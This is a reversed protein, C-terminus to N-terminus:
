CHIAAIDCYLSIVRKTDDDVRYLDSSRRGVVWAIEEGDMLLPQREKEFLNLKLDTLFDSVLKRKGGMGFPAFTDGEKPTRLTLEGHLKDADLYAYNPSKNFTVKEVPLTKCHLSSLNFNDNKEREVILATRDILLRRGNAVFVKGSENLASLVEKLQAKNFGLPSLVEHLLSIPSPQRKLKEIHICVEGNEKEEVCQSIAEKMAEQYVKMVENLNEMTSVMNNAAGQNISEMVPMMNLRVKNRAYTDEMNTHDTVYDQRKAHLYNQIDQRTLCLLPRVVDDHKPQMGCLGKIGTGRVLNLLLTETNDDQHHGVAIAEAGTEDKQKRFWDYRHKRAAMEISMGHEKAYRATEFDKKYLKWEWQQCLTEVFREDRMSEEGRLHFNCHVAVVEYGLEHLMLALCVSDPGGSLGVVVRAGASLLNNERIFREVKEKLVSM